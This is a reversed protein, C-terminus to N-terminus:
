QAQAALEVLQELITDSAAMVFPEPQFPDYPRAGELTAVAGGAEELILAAPIVDWPGQKVRGPNNDHVIASLRKEGAAMRAALGSHPVTSTVLRAGGPLRLLGDLRTFAPAQLRQDSNRNMEVWAEGLREPQECLLREPGFSVGKFAGVGRVAWFIENTLPFNIVALDTEGGSRHAVMNSPMERAVGFLFAASGDLPDEVWFTTAQGIDPSLEESLITAQPDHELIAAQIARDCKVDVECVLDGLGKETIAHHVAYNDRVIEGATQAAGVAVALMETTAPDVDRLVPVIEGIDTM